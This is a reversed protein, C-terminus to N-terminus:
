SHEAWEKRTQRLGNPGPVWGEEMFSNSVHIGVGQWDTASNIPPEGPRRLTYGRVLRPVRSFLAITVPEPHLM